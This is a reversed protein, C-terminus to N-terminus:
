PAAAPDRERLWAHAEDTRGLRTLLVARNHVFLEPGFRAICADTARLGPDPGRRQAVANAWQRCVRRHQPFRELAHAWLAEDDAFRASSLLFSPVLALVCTCAVAQVARVLGARELRCARDFVAAAVWGAGLLPLYLYSDALYRSLPFFLGSSPLYTLLAFSAGILVVRRLAADASTSRWALAVLAACLLPALDVRASFGPPWAAPLYKATTEEWLFLVSLHHGLAYWAAHLGSVDDAGAALAGVSAQGRVGLLAIPVLVVAFPWSRAVWSRLSMERGLCPLVVAFVAFPAASPKSLLALAYCAASLPLAWRARGFACHLAVLGWLAALVDKRGSLWSVPEASAPHLAFLLLGLASAAASLGLRRSLGFYLCCVILQYCLQSVHFGLPAGAFLVRDLAYSAVTVPIPYGLQPTLLGGGIAALHLKDDWDLVAFRLTPLLCLAVVSLAGALWWRDRLQTLESPESSM